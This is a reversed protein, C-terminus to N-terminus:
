RIVTLTGHFDVARVRGQYHFTYFYVGDSLNSASFGNEENYIVGDRAFTQYNDCDFVKKGWRNYISLHNPREADMNIIAFVDNKGDGNPTIINPFQLDAEIYVTHSVSAECEYIQLSLTVLFEGWTGYTHEFDYSTTIDSNGDGFDWHWHYTEGALSTINTANHFSFLGGESLLMQDPEPVFEPQPVPAVFLHLEVTSDCHWQNTLYQYHTSHGYTDTEPASIDFHHLHYSGGQCITDSFLTRHTPHVYLTMYVTSDAGSQAVLVASDSGAQPFTRGNWTLPLADDCITSDVSTSVNPWVFLDVIITSDCGHRNPITIEDVGAEEFTLGSLTYPLQNEVITDFVFTTNHAIVVDVTAFNNLTDCESQQGGNQAVGNGGDNLAVVFNTLGRHTCLVEQPLSFSYQACSDVPLTAEITEVWLVTDRYENLYVTIEYPANLINDGNNCYSIDITVSDPYYSITAAETVAVDPVTNYPEGYRDISTGQQLFNNFPRHWESPNNRYPLLAANNFLYLPITGDENVNTVNYAYQNWVRRAPAWASGDSKFFYLYGFDTATSAGGVVIEAEGDLDVDAVVPYEIGMASACAITALDYPATLTAQTQHHVLSGNIIRLNNVDRYVLESYGDQNFDFLTLGTSGSNDSHALTWFLEMERTASAANYKLAYILDNSGTNHGDSTGVIFCVEPAGDSDIDGIQPVGFKTSNPIKKSCLIEGTGSDWVYLYLVHNEQDVNMVVVDLRGDLNLDAVFTNGDTFPIASDDAMRLHASDVQIAVEMSNRSFNTRSQLNVRYITNGAALDLGFDGTLDAAVPQYTHVNDDWNRRAHGTNGGTKCLLVGTAADYIEGGIFVESWGDHNFDAFSIAPLTVSEGNHSSYPQDSRWLQTGNYDYAYLYRDSSFVVAITQYVSPSMQVKGLALSSWVYSNAVAFQTEQTGDAKYVGVMNFQNGSSTQPILVEPEDDDDFDGVIPVSVTVANSVTSVASQRMSWADAAPPVVCDASDVNDPYPQVLLFIYARSVTDHCNVAYHISDLGVFNTTPRYTVIEGQVTASGHYPGALIEPVVNSCHLTDNDLPRIDHSLNMPLTVYDDVTVRPVVTVVVSTDATCPSGDFSGTVHFVTTREPSAYTTDTNDSTLDDSPTWLYHEAGSVWLTATDGTRITIDPTIALHQNHVVLQLTILTDTGIVVTDSSSFTVSRWEVPLDNECVITDYTLELAPTWTLVMHIVSDCNYQNTFTVEQEGFDDFVAGNWTFPLQAYQTSDYLTTDSVPKVLLELHVLSDCGNEAIYLSDYSYLGPTSIDLNDFRGVTYPTESQCVDVRVTDMYPPIIYGYIETMVADTLVDINWGSSTNLWNSSFRFTICSSDTVIEPHSNAHTIATILHLPDATAGAYILLSDGAPIDLNNFILRFGGQSVCFTYTLHENNDYDDYEGGSDFFRVGEGNQLLLAGNDMNVTQHVAGYFSACRGTNSLTVYLVTDDPLEPITFTAFQTASWVTDRQLLTDQTPSDYWNVYFPPTLSAGAQLVAEYGYCAYGDVPNVNATPDAEVEYVLIRTTDIIYDYVCREDEADTIWFLNDGYIPFTHHLIDGAQATLDMEGSQPAGFHHLTFQVLGNGHVALALEMESGACLTTDSLIDVTPAHLVEIFVSDTFATRCGTNTIELNYWGSESGYPLQVINDREDSEFGNPGSWHYTVSQTFPLATLFASDGECHGEGPAYGSEWALTSQSLSTVVMNISFSNRCSDIALVSVQQGERLPIDYFNGDTSTGIIEGETDAQGYLYYYYPQTGNIAHTLVNGTSTEADCIVAYGMDFDIYIPEYIITDYHYLYDNGPLCNTYAQTRIVYSGPITFVIQNNVTYWGSAPGAVVSYSVNANGTVEIPEDNSINPNVYFQHYKCLSYPTVFYRDCVQVGPFQPEVDFELYAYHHRRSSSSPTYVYTLTDTGCDTTVAFSYRGAAFTPNRANVNAFQMQWGNGMTFTVPIYDVTTDEWVVDWIDNISDYTATFNYLNYLPSEFLHITINKRFRYFDVNKERLYFFRNYFCSYNDKEFEWEYPTDGSPNDITFEYERYFDEWVCGRGDTVVIHVRMSTDTHTPNTFSCTLQNFSTKEDHALLQEDNETYIDLTLPCSATYFVTSCVVTDPRYLYAVGYTYPICQYGTIYYRQTTVGSYTHVVCTDDAMVVTELMEADTDYRFTSSIKFMRFKIAYYGTCQNYLELTVTDNYLDCYRSIASLTDIMSYSNGNTGSGFRSGPIEYWRTTDNGPNIFRYQVLSDLYPHDYNYITQNWSHYIYFSISLTTTDSCNTNCSYNYQGYYYNVKKLPVNASLQITYDCSDSATITYDGAALSDFTYFDFYDAYTSDTGNHERQYFYRDRVLQNNEDYIQIHYPFNGYRLKLQIRGVDGCEFSGRIGCRERNRYDAGAIGSLISAEFHNYYTPVVINCITTDVLEYTTVGGTTVPVYGVVGFCYTGASLQIDNLTDYRTNTGATQNRYHYQVNFLPYTTTDAAHHTAPNILVENGFEDWLTIIARSDDFCNGAITEVRISYPFPLDQAWVSGAYVAFLFCLLSLLTKKM